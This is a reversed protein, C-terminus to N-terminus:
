LMGNRFNYSFFKPIKLSSTTKGWDLLKFDRIWQNRPPIPDKQKLGTHIRFLAWWKMLVPLIMEMATCLAQKGVMIIALQICLEM